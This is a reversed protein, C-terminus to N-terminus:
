YRDRAHRRRVEDAIAADFEEITARKGEANLCGFVADPDTPVFSPAPRLLVGEDTEEAILERGANWNKADRISKPLIVQGKTSITTTVRKRQTM